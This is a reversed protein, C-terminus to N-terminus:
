NTASAAQATKAAAKATTAAATTAKAASGATQAADAVQQAPPTPAAAQSPSTGITSCNAQFAQNAKDLEAMRALADRKVSATKTKGEAIKALRDPTGEQRLQDIKATLEVCVPNIAPAKAAAVETEQNGISGTMLDLGGDAACGAVSAAGALVASILITRKM